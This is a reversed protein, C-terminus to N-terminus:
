ILPKGSILMAIMSDSCTRYRKDSYGLMTSRCRTGNVPPSREPDPRPLARRRVSRLDEISVISSLVPLRGPLRCVACSLRPSRHFSVSAPSHARRATPMPTRSVAKPRRPRSRCRRLRRLPLGGRRPVVFAHRRARSAESTSTMGSLPPPAPSRERLDLWYSPSGRHSCRRNNWRGDDQHAQKSDAGVLALGM